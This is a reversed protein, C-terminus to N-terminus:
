GFLHVGIFITQWSAQSLLIEDTWNKDLDGASSRHRRGSRWASDHPFGVVLTYGLSDTRVDVLGLKVM